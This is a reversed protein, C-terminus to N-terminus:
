NRQDDFTEFPNPCHRSIITDGDVVFMEDYGSLLFIATKMANPARDPWKPTELENMEWFDCGWRSAAAKMSARSNGSLFNGYNVTVIASNM